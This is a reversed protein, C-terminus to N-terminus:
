GRSTTILGLPLDTYSCRTRVYLYHPRTHTYHTSNFRLHEYREYAHTHELYVYSADDVRHSDACINERTEAASQNWTSTPSLARPVDSGRFCRHWSVINMPHVAGRGPAGRTPEITREAPTKAPRARPFNSLIVVFTIIGRTGRQHRHRTCTPHKHGAFVGANIHNFTAMSSVRRRTDDAMNTDDPTDSPPATPGISSPM